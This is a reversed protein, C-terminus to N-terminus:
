QVASEVLDYISISEDSYLLSYNGEAALINIDDGQQVIIFEPKRSEYSKRTGWRHFNYGNKAEYVAVEIDSDTLITINLGHWYDTTWGFTYKKDQLLRIYEPLEDSFGGQFKYINCAFVCLVFLLVLGSKIFKNIKERYLCSIALPLFLYSAMGLYHIDMLRGWSKGLTTFALCFVHFLLTALYIAILRNLGTNEYIEARGQEPPIKSQHFIYAVVVAYMSIYGFITLVGMIGNLSTLKSGSWSLAGFTEILAIPLYTLNETIDKGNVLTKGVGGVSYIKIIVEHYLIYGLASAGVLMAIRYLTKKDINFEESYLNRRVVFFIEALFIPVIVCSLYRFGCMGMCMCLLGMVLLYFMKPFGTLKYNLLKFYIILLMLSCMVYFIYYQGRFCYTYFDGGAGILLFMGLCSCWISKILMRLLIIGFIVIALLILAFSLTYVLRYDDTFRFIISQILTAHLMRLETTYYFDKCLFWENNEAMTKALLLDAGLDSEVHKVYGIYEYIVMLFYQAVLLSASLFTVIRKLSLKKELM